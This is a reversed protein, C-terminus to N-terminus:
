GHLAALTHLSIEGSRDAQGLRGAKPPTRRRGFVQRRRLPDKKPWNSGGLSIRVPPGASGCAQAPAHLANTRRAIEAQRTGGGGPLYCATHAPIVM